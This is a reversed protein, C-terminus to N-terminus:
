RKKALLYIGVLLGITCIGAVYYAPAMPSFKLLATVVMPTLGGFIAYALNYSFSLGSFRVVPPFAKVMVYPVAGVIGVCLGTLAYLPFMWEPHTPLSHYFTWSSALLLLSGVIFVRGAGLRDALAGTGICGFSLLVIALSNAKLSDTPSVQYLSQLLAPTMLIVVVIGASLLWTLLM